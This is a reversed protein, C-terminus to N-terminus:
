ERMERQSKKPARKKQKSNEKCHAMVVYIREIVEREEVSSIKIISSLLRAAREVTAAHQQRNNAPLGEGGESYTKPEPHHKPAARWWGGGATM